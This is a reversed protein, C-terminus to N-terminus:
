PGRGAPRRWRSGRSGSSRPRGGGRSVNAGSRRAPDRRRTAPRSSPAPDRHRTATGDRRAGDRRRGTAGRAEPDRRAARGEPRTAHPSCLQGTRPGWPEFRASDARNQDFRHEPRVCGVPGPALRDTTSTQRLEPWRGPGRAVLRPWWGPGGAPAVLRAGRAVPSGRAVASATDRIGAQDAASGTLGPLPNAVSARPRQRAASLSGVTPWCSSPRGFRDGGWPADSPDAAPRGGSSPM